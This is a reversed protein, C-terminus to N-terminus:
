RCSELARRLQLHTMGYSHFVISAGPSAPAVEVRFQTVDHHAKIFTTRGGAATQNVSGWGELLAGAVCDTAQTPSKASTLAEPAGFDPHGPRCAGLGILLVIAAKRM